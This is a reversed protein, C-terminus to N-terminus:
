GRRPDRSWAARPGTVPAANGRGASAALRPAPNKGCRPPALCSQRQAPRAPAGTTATSTVFKVISARSLLRIFLSVLRQLFYSHNTVGQQGFEILLHGVGAFCQLAARLVFVAPLRMGLGEAHTRERRMDRVHGSPGGIDNLFIREVDRRGARWRIFFLGGSRALLQQRQEVLASAAARAAKAPAVSSCRACVQDSSAPPSVRRLMGRM